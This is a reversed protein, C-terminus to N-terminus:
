KAVMERDFTQTEKALDAQLLYISQYQLLKSWTEYPLANTLVVVVRTQGALPGSKPIAYSVLTLVGATVGDKAGYRRHFLLRMPDDAPTSELKQQVRASVAPSILQGSAIQVM